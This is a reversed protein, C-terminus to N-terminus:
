GREVAIEAHADAGMLAAAVEDLFRKYLGYGDISKPGIPIFNLTSRTMKYSELGGVRVSTQGGEDRALASFTCFELRRNRSTISLGLDHSSEEEVNVRDGCSNGSVDWPNIMAWLRTLWAMWDTNRFAVDDAVAKILTLTATPELATTAVLARAARSKATVQM